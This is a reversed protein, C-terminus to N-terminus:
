GQKEINSDCENEEKKKSDLNFSCNFIEELKKLSNKYVETLQFGFQKGFNDLEKNLERNNYGVKDKLIMVNEGMLKISERVLPQVVSDVVSAAKESNNSINNIDRLLTQTSSVFKSVSEANFNTPSSIYNIKAIECLMKCMNLQRTLTERHDVKDSSYLESFHEAICNSVDAVGCDFQKAIAKTSVGSDVLVRISEFDIVNKPKNENCNNTDVSENNSM